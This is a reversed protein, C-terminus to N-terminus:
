IHILSLALSSELPVVEPFTTNGPAMYRAVLGGGILSEAEYDPKMANAFSVKMFPCKYTGERGHLGLESLMTTEIENRFALTDRNEHNSHKVIAEVTGSIADIKEENTERNAQHIATRSFIHVMEPHLVPARGTAYYNM